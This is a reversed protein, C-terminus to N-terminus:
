LYRPLTGNFLFFNTFLIFFLPFRSFFLFAIGTSLSTYLSADPPRPAYRPHHLFSPRRASRAHATRAGVSANLTKARSRPPPQIASTYEALVQGRAVTDQLARVIRWCGRPRSLVGRAVRLSLALYPSVFCGRCLVTRVSGNSSQIRGERCFWSWCM